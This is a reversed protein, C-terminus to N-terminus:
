PHLGGRQTSFWRVRAAQEPTFGKMLRAVIRMRRLFERDGTRAKAGSAAYEGLARPLDRRANYCQQVISPYDGGLGEDIHPQAM